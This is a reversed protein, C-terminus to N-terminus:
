GRIIYGYASRFVSWVLLPSADGVQQLQRRLRDPCLYGLAGNLHVPFMTIANNADCVDM